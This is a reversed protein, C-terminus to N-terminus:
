NLAMRHRWYARIMKECLCLHCNVAKIKKCYDASRRQARNEYVTWGDQGAHVGRNVTKAGQDRSRSIYPSALNSWNSDGEDLAAGANGSRHEGEQLHANIDAAGGCHTNLKNIYYTTHRINGDYMEVTCIIPHSLTICDLSPQYCYNKIIYYLITCYLITSNQWSWYREILEIM